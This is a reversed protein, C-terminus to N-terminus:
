EVGSSLEEEQIEHDFASICESVTNCYGREVLLGCRQDRTDKLARVTAQVARAESADAEDIHWNEHVVRAMLLVLGQITTCDVDPLWVTSNGCPFGSYFSFAENGKRYECDFLVSYDCSEAVPLFVDTVLLRRAKNICQAESASLQTGGKASDVRKWEKRCGCFTWYNLAAATLWGAGTGVASNM